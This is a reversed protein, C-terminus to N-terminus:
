KQRNQDECLDCIMEEDRDREDVLGWHGCISCSVLVGGDENRDWNRVGRMRKAKTPM